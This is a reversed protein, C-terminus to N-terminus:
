NSLQTTKREKRRAQTRAVSDEFRISQDGTDIIHARHTLRDLLAKCLRPDPFVSTWEGFALNTTIILPRREHREGLVRFLLEADTRALPLYALEDLVLLDLRTYRAVVKALERHDRAEVLETVLRAAPAFRVSRGQQAAAVGLATALHTKGTGPEGILIIPEAKDIYAGKALQRVLNEPIHPNRGFDFGELTKVIPFAAEKLRRANRREDREEIEATLLQLLYDAPDGGQRRFTQALSEADRQIAPLRLRHCLEQIPTKHNQTNM